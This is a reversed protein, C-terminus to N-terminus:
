RLFMMQFFGRLSLVHVSRNTHTHAHTRDRPFTLKLDSGSGMQDLAPLLSSVGGRCQQHMHSSMCRFRVKIVHLHMQRGAVECMDRAHLSEENQRRLAGQPKEHRVCCVGPVTVSRPRYIPNGASCDSCSGPHPLQTRLVPSYRTPTHSGATVWAPFPARIGGGSCRRRAATVRCSEISIQM